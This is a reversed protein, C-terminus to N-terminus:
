RFHGYVTWLTWLSVNLKEFVSSLIFTHLNPKYIHNIEPNELSVKETVIKGGLDSTRIDIVRSESNRM